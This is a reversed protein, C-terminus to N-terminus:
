PVQVLRTHASDPNSGSAAVIESLEDRAAEITPFTEFFKVRIENIYEKGEYNEYLKIKINDDLVKAITYKAKVEEFFYFNYTEVPLLGADDVQTQYTTKNTLVIYKEM